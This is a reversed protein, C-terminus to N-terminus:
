IVLNRSEKNSFPLLLTTIAATNKKIRSNKNYSNKLIKKEKM